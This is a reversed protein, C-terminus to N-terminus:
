KAAKAKRTTAKAKAPQKREREWATVVLDVLKYNIHLEGAMRQVFRDKKTM